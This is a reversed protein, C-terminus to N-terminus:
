PLKAIYSEGPSHGWSSYLIGNHQPDPDPDVPDVHKQAEHIRIRIQIRRDGLWFLLFVKIRVAIHSRKSKKDKFIIYM